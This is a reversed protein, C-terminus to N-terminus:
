GVAKNIMGIYQGAISFIAIIIFIAVLGYVAYGTLQAALKLKREGEERYNDALRECVETIQGSEEAVLPAANRTSPPTTREMTQNQEM